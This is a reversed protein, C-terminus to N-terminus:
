SKSHGAFLYAMMNGSLYKPILLQISEASSWATFELSSTQWSFTWSVTIFSCHYIRNALSILATLTKVKL